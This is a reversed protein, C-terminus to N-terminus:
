GAPVDRRRFGVFALAFLVVAVGALGLMHGAEPPETFAAPLWYFPSIGHVWDPLDKLLGGFMGIVFTYILLVWGVGAAAPFWAYLVLAFGLYSALAVLYPWLVGTYDAFTQEEYGVSTAGVWMAWISVAALTGTGLAAVLLQSGFWRHRSVSPM